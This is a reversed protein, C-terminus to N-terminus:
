QQKVGFFRPGSWQTGTIEKAIPTLSRFRRRDFLFGEELVVVDYIKGHWERTLHTGPKLKIEASIELDGKELLQKGLKKLERTLTPTYGRGRQAQVSHGILRIALDRGLGKPMIQGKHAIRWEARMQAVTMEDLAALRADIASM